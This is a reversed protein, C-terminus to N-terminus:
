PNRRPQRTDSEPAHATAPAGILEELAALVVDDVEIWGRARREARVAASREFPVRVPQAPDLPRTSRILEAYESVSRRYTEPDVFLDPRVALVFFGFDRLEGPLVPSGALAGLLQVAIGLGSGRHGGWNVFAGQLAELPDLTPSGSADYASGAPLETGTRHALVAQAHIIESIGIDWIVPVGEGPFGFCIPNTGFRAETGGTPAVWPSANSAIMAVMGAATIREAYYSLMGTYWTRNAGVAGIGTGRAKDIATDTAALATLYGITDGGDFQASVPSERTVRPAEAPGDAAALRDGISLIRALGSYELGRLECDLLHDTITRSSGSDYGLAELAAVSLSEADTLTIRM